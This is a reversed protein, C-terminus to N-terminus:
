IDQNELKARVIWIVSRDLPRFEQEVKFGFEELMRFEEPNQGPKETPVQHTVRFLWAAFRYAISADTIWAAPLWYVIGSPKLVRKYEIWTAPEIIYNSPFTAVITHFSQNAFPLFQAYGNIICFDDSPFVIKSHALRTMHYSADIGWVRLGKQRLQAILHGPGFGTELVPSHTIDEAISSVWADWLGLSVTRAVIDYSWAFENYLLKFVFNLFQSLLLNYLKCICCFPYDPLIYEIIM